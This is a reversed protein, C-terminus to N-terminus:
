KLSYAMLAIITLSDSIIGDKIMQFCKDISIWEYNSNKSSDLSEVNDTYFVYTHNKTFELDPDYEILSNLNNIVIGTEEKCERKASEEPSEADDVRGGPIEFSIGNILLRYQRVFLVYNDKVVLVASKEGFDSVFYEKKFGDFNAILKEIKKFSDKYVFGYSKINEPLCITERKTTKTNTKNTM